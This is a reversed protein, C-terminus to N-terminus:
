QNATDPEPDTAAGYLCLDVIQGIWHRRYEEDHPTTDWLGAHFDVYQAQNVIRELLTGSVIAPDVDARVLGAQRATDLFDTLLQEHRRIAGAVERGGHKFGAPLEAFVMRLVDPEDLLAVLTEECFLQLRLRLESGDGAPVGLIREATALRQTTFRELISRYLAEKSGFHYHVANASVGAATCIDRVSAGDYGLRAFLRTATDVVAQRTASAAM